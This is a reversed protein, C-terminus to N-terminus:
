HKTKISSELYAIGLKTADIFDDIKIESNQQNKNNVIDRLSLHVILECLEPIHDNFFMGELTRYLRESELNLLDIKIKYATKENKKM